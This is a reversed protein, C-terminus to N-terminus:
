TLCKVKSIFSPLLPLSFVVRGEWPRMLAFIEVFGTSSPMPPTPGQKGLVMDETDWM